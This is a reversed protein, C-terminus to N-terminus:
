SPKSNKNEVRGSTVLKHMTMDSPVATKLSADEEGSSPFQALKRLKSKIYASFTTVNRLFYKVEVFKQRDPRRKTNLLEFVVQFKKTTFVAM